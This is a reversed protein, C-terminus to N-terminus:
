APQISEVGFAIIEKKIRVLMRRFPQESSESFKPTLEELGPVRRLEELLKRVPEDLGAVFLNIGETSLLITGKLGWEKCQDRLKERHAKLNDLAAFKYAAINTFRTM